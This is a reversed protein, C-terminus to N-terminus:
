VRNKLSPKQLLTSIIWGEVSVIMIGFFFILFIIAVMIRYDGTPFFKMILKTLFCASFGMLIGVLVRGIVILNYTHKDDTQHFTKKLALYFTNIYFKLKPFPLKEFQSLTTIWQQTTRLPNNM